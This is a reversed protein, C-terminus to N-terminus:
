RTATAAALFETASMGPRYLGLIASESAIVGGTVLGAAFREARARDCPYDKEFTMPEHEDIAGVLALRQVFPFLPHHCGLDHYGFLVAKAELLVNQLEGVALERPTLNKRACLAAAAGAAQGVAMVVPQLRTCGNVIHTVAYSKEAVLLGDVRLPVLAGYPVQFPGNGPYDEHLRQDEPLHRKAHHHDLYYDGVAIADKRLPARVAGDRPLVDDEKLTVVGIQRRCERVYPIFPLLDATGYQTEDLGWEPHKLERQMLRVFALTRRRALALERDRVARDEIMARSVPHDNAHFPWNLLYRDNPVRSYSLFGKWDFLKHNWHSPDQTSAFEAITGDFDRAAIGDQAAVPPAVGDFKRLIACYTLDQIEDDPERPAHDEGTEAHSERGIRHDVMALPLFDGWETADITVSARVSHVEGKWEIVAGVVRTQELSAAVVRAGHWVEVASRKATARLWEAAVRPEFCSDSVWGTKLKQPGGYYAELHDRLERLIGGSMEGKNGDLASVGAATIMGGLWPTEEVLLVRAGM